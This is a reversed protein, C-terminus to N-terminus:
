IYVILDLFAPGFKRLDLVLQQRDPQLPKPRSELEDHCQTCCFETWVRLGSVVLAYILANSRL